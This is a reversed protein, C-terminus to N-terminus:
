AAAPERLRTAQEVGTVPLRGADLLGIQAPHLNYLPAPESPM